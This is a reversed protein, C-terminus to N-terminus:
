LCENYGPLMASMQCTTGQPCDSAIQPDCFEYDQIGNPAGCETGQRCSVVSFSSRGNWDGCCV